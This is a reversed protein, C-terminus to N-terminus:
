ILNNFPHKLKKKKKDKNVDKKDTINLFHKQILKDLYSM